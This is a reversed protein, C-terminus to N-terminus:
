VVVGMHPNFRFMNAGIPLLYNGGGIAILDLCARPMSEAVPTLDLFAGAEPSLM